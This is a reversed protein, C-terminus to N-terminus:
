ALSSGINLREPSFEILNKYETSHKSKDCISALLEGWGTLSFFASRIVIEVLNKNKEINWVIVDFETLQDGIKGSCKFIGKNQQDFNVVLHYKERAETIGEAIAKRAYAWEGSVIVYVPSVSYNAIPMPLRNNNNYKVSHNPEGAIAKSQAASTTSHLSSATMKKVERANMTLVDLALYNADSAVGVVDSNNQQNGASGGATVASSNSSNKNMPNKKNNNAVLIKEKEM